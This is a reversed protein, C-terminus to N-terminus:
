RRRVLRGLCLGVGLLVLGLLGSAPLRAGGLTCGCGSPASPASPGPNAVSSADGPDDGVALDFPPPADASLTVATSAPFPGVYASLRQTAADWVVGGGAAIAASESAANAIPQGNVYLARPQTQAHLHVEYRRATPAGAYSGAAAGVSLTFAADRWALSTTTRAGSEHAESLGDDDYLAFAGDAGPYVQVVLVSKDWASTSAMPRAEPLIAGARVFMPQLGGPAARTLTAPGDHVADTWFDYWRGAPLWVPVTGSDDTAPVVLLERGWLYQLDKQWAIPDHPADLFMPRALPVGTAHAAHAYSYLYPLLAMRLNGYTRLDEQAAASFQWPFRLGLGHPKWVPSFSGMAVAWRRYMADAPLVQFGGADHAWFPFGSLGAAQMGRIQRQMEVWTTDIDGSWLSAWRQAGATMGRAMFYPRKAGAFSRDWGEGVSKALLFFYYAGMEEWARGNALRGSPTVDEDPEDLWLLDGPYGLAPDFTQTWLLNWFWDRVQASSYDPWDTTGPLLFSPQWGASLPADARNFDLMSVVGNQRSFREFDAPDPYRTRDWRWAATKGGRWCNDHIIVDFPWGGARLQAVHDRWWGDSSPLTDGIKDSLGLGFAALPPLRPRGTLQTYRDLVDTLLPGAFFFYDLQDNLVEFHYDAALFSFTNHFTSNLFLGYGRSSLYFPVILPAQNVRGRSIVSGRLDLQEVRGYAGHGLGAFHEDAAPAFTESSAGGNAYRIEIPYNGASPVNVTWEVYDGTDHQYDVYGTGSYGPYQTSFTGGTRAGNEAEYTTTGVKLWDVNAGSAGLATARVTHSGATLTLAFTTTAWRDWGRTPPFPLSANAVAGDVRLELPRDATSIGQTADEALLPVGGELFSLRLPTKQVRVELAGGSLRFSTGEDTLALTATSAHSQVMEYRDDSVFSEGPAAAQVRVTGDGYPTVRLQEGRDSVFLWARGDASHRAYNGLPSRAHAVGVFLWGLLVVASGRRTIM